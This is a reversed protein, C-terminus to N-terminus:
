LQEMEKKIRAWPFGVVNDYDGEIHDIYPAFGGQIAYAGAKDYPEKTSIYREIDEDTYHKFFVKTIEHFVKIIEAGTSNGAHRPKILAVGTAVYHARGRLGRLINFADNRDKPKGIVHDSYVITDAGIIVYNKHKFNHAAKGQVSSAKQRALEMVADEPKLWDPFIEEGVPPIVVHKISNARLIEQRRPSSSALIILPMTRDAHKVMM